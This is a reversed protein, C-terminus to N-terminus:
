INNDSCNDNIEHTECKSVLNKEKKEDFKKVLLKELKFSELYDSNLGENVSTLGLVNDQRRMMEKYKNLIRMYEEAIEGCRRDRLDKSEKKGKKFVVNKNEDLFVDNINVLRKGNPGSRLKGSIKMLIERFKVVSSNKLERGFTEGMKEVEKLFHEKDVTVAEVNSAASYVFTPKLYFLMYLMGLCDGPKMRKRLMSKYNIVDVYGTQILILENVPSNPSFIIERIKFYKFRFGYSLRMLFEKVEERGEGVIGYYEEVQRFVDRWLFEAFKAKIERPLIDFNERKTVKEYRAHKATFIVDGLIENANQSSFKKSNKGQSFKRLDSLTKQAEVLHGDDGVIRIEQYLLSVLFSFFIIGFVMISTVFVKELSNLPIYDGFGTTTLTTLSAFFCILLSFYPDKSEEIVTSNGYLGYKGIFSKEYKGISFYSVLYWACAFFFTGFIGFFILRGLAVYKRIKLNVREVFSFFLIVKNIRILRLLRFLPYTMLFVEYPFTSILDLIFWRRLYKLAMKKHSTVLEGTVPDEYSQFFNLIMYVVYSSLIVYDSYTPSSDLKFTLKYILEMCYILTAMIIIFDFILKPRSNPSIYFKM